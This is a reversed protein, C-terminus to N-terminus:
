RYQSQSNGLSGNLYMISDSEPADLTLFFNLSDNSVNVEPVRHITDLKGEYIVPSHLADLMLSNQKYGVLLHLIVLGLLSAILMKLNM